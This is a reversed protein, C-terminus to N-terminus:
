NIDLEIIKEQGILRMFYPSIYDVMFINNNLIDNTPDIIQIIDGYQLITDGSDNNM